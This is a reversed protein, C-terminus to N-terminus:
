NERQSLMHSGFFVLDVITFCTEILIEENRHGLLCLLVHCADNLYPSFSLGSAKVLARLSQLAIYKESALHASEVPLLM